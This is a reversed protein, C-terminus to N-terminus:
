KVEFLSPVVVNIIEDCKSETSTFLTLCIAELLNNQVTEGSM